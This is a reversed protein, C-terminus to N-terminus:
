LILQKPLCLCWPLESRTLHPFIICARETTKIWSPSRRAVCPWKWEIDYEWAVRKSSQERLKYDNIIRKQSAERYLWISTFLWNNNIYEKWGEQRPALCTLNYFSIRKSLLSVDIPASDKSTNDNSCCVYTNGM